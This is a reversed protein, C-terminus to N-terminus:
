KVAFKFTGTPMSVVDDGSVGDDGDPEGKVSDINSNGEHALDSGRDTGNEDSKVYASSGAGPNTVSSQTRRKRGNIRDM